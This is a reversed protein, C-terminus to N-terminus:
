KTKAKQHKEEEEQKGIRLLTQMLVISHPVYYHTCAQHTSTFVFYFFITHIRQVHLHINLEDDNMRMM